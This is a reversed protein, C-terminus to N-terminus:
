SKAARLRLSRAVPAFTQKDVRPFDKPPAFADLVVEAGHGYAHLSRVSRRQGQNTQLGVLEVARLGPKMVLRSSTLEFTPDRSEVQAVLALRAAHLQSRTVPLPESRKYRWLAMQADGAAVVSIQPDTGQQERWNVPIKLGVGEAPYKVDRFSSPPPIFGTDPVATRSNGCAGLLVAAVLSLLVLRV